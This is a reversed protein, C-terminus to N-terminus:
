PKGITIGLAGLAIVVLSTIRSEWKRNSDVRKIDKSHGDVRGELVGIRDHDTQQLAEIRDLKDLVMDLKTGLVALTVRGNLGDPM